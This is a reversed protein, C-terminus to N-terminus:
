GGPDRPSSSVIGTSILRFSPLFCGPCTALGDCALCVSVYECNLMDMHGSQM